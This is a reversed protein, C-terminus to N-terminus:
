SRMGYLKSRRMAETRLIQVRDDWRDSWELELAYLDDRMESLLEFIKNLSRLKEDRRISAPKPFLLIQGPKTRRPM